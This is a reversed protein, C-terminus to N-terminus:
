RGCWEGRRRRLKEMGEENRERRRNKGSRQSMPGHRFFWKQGRYGLAKYQLARERVLGMAQT